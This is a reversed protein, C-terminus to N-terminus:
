GVRPIIVVGLRLFATRECTGTTIALRNTAARGMRDGAVSRGVYLNSEVLSHGMGFGHNRAAWRYTQLLIKDHYWGDFSDSDM